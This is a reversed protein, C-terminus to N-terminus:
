RSEWRARAGKKVILKRKKASLSKARAPGGKLGGKRGAEVGKPRLWATSRVLDAESKRIPTACPTAIAAIMMLTNHASAGAFMGRSSSAPILASISTKASASGTAVAIIKPM